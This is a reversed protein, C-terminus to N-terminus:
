TRVFNRQFYKKITEWKVQKLMKLAPESDADAFYSIAKRLILPNYNGFKKRYLEICKEPTLKKEMIIFYLDTFDKRSGRGIIANIKMCLIDELSAIFVSDAEQLSQLLRHGYHFFSMKIGAIEVHVTDRSLYFTKEAPFYEQYGTLDVDLPTFFDLDYSERHHLYYYVATGGALYFDADDLMPLVKGIAKKHQPLLKM